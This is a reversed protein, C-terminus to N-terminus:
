VATPLTFTFRSGKGPESEVWVNQNHLEIIKKVIALGLGAHGASSRQPDDVRHFSEFILKKQSSSIGKGEDNVSVCIKQNQDIAVELWIKHDEGTYQLANDILNDLVREILGIDAVVRVDQAHRDVTLQINKEEAKLRFKNVVDYVLELISFNEFVIGTDRAELKVLEFLQDILKQLRRTQKISINLYQKKDDESLTNGKLMITELYGQASALPTRLDHSISAIMERRLQDQQKLAAWQQTIHQSMKNFCNELETIEDGDKKDANESYEHPQQYDSEAFSTVKEQLAKIRLTLRRFIYLGIFFGLLLSGVLGLSALSLIYQQSQAQRAKSFEEGQLVVYLYGTPSDASPLPTVSFTKQRDHSRPDDGLLPSAGKTSLFQQIPLLSVSNRKVKGPEASYSLIKGAHDLYYIEISPNISMYEMFTHKMADVDIEGDHVIRKDDVLNKALNRNLEQAATQQLQRTLLTVSVSYLLGVCLLILVLGMAMKAHITKTWRM